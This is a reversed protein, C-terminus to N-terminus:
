RRNRTRGVVPLHKKFALVNGVNRGVLAADVGHELFVRQERVQVHEVVDRESQIQFLLATFVLDVLLAYLAISFSTM